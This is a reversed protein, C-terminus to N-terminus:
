LKNHDTVFQSQALRDILFFVKRTRSTFHFITKIFLSFNFLIFSLIELSKQSYQQNSQSQYDTDLSPPNLTSPSPLPLLFHLTKRWTYNNLFLFIITKFFDGYFIAYQCSSNRSTREVETCM